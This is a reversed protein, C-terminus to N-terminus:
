LAQEVINKWSVLLLQYLYSEEILTLESVIKM